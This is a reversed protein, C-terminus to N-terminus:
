CAASESRWSYVQWYRLGKRLVTTTISVSLLEILWLALGLCGPALGIGDRYVCMLQNLLNIPWEKSCAILM